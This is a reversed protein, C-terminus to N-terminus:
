DTGNTGGFVMAVEADHSRNRWLNIPNEVRTNLHKKHLKLRNNGSM